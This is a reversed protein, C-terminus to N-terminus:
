GTSSGMLQQNIVKMLTTPDGLIELEKSRSKKGAVVSINGGPCKLKKAVLRTLAKNAEGKEPVSRVYVKLWSRGDATEIVDGIRDRAAKPTLRVALRVGGDCNRAPGLAKPGSFALFRDSRIPM